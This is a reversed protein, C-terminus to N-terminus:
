KGSAVSADYEDDCNCVVHIETTDHWLIMMPSFQRLTYDLINQKSILGKRWFRQLIETVTIQLSSNKNISFSDVSVNLFSNM